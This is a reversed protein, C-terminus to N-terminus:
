RGTFPINLIHIMSNDFNLVLLMLVSGTRTYTYLYDHAFDISNKYQIEAFLRNLTLNFFSQSHSISSKYNIGNNDKIDNLSPPLLFDPFLATKVFITEPCIPSFMDPLCGKLVTLEQHQM